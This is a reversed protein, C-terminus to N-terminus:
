KAPLKTLKQKAGGEYQFASVGQRALQNVFTQAEAKTKFPGTVVRNTARLPTSYAVRGKLASAKRQAAAWAKPLDSEQAGGAVQVWIRGDEADDKEKKGADKKALATKDAAKGKKDSARKSAGTGVDEDKAAPKSRSALEVKGRRGKRVAPEAEEQEADAPKPKAAAKSRATSKSTAAITRAAATRDATERAAEAAGQELTRATTPDSRTAAAIEQREPATVGLEEGPVTISAVIRALISDESRVPASPAAAALPSPEAGVSSPAPTLPTFGPAPQVAATTVPASAPPVPVPQAAAATM